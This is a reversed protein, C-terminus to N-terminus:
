DYQYTVGLSEKGYNRNENYTKHHYFFQLVPRLQTSNNAVGQHLLRYDYLIASGAKFIGDLHANLLPAAPGFGIYM